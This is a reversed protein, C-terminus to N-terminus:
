INQFRYTINYLEDTGDDCHKVSYMKQDTTKHNLGGLEKDYRGIKIYDLYKLIPKIDELSDYGSYMAFALNNYRSKVEQIMQVIEDLAHDGGMFLICSIYDYYKDIIKYIDDELSDGDDDWLYKSHCDPCKHICGCINFALSIEDPVEQLVVQYGKYKLKEM